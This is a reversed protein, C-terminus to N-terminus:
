RYGLDFLLDSTYRDLHEVLQKTTMRDIENHAKQEAYQRPSDKFIDTVLKDVLWVEFTQM